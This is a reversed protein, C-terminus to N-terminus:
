LMQFNSRSVMSQINECFELTSEEGDLQVSVCGDTNLYDPLPYTRVSISSKM